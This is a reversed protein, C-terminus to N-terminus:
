GQSTAAARASSGKAQSKKVRELTREADMQLRESLAGHRIGVVLRDRIIEGKFTGYECSDVMTYLAAIYEDSTEGEM